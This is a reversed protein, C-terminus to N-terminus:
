GNIDDHKVMWILWWLRCRVYSLVGSMNALCSLHLDRLGGGQLCVSVLLWYGDAGLRRLLRVGEGACTRSSPPKFPNGKGEIRLSRGKCSPIDSDGHSGRSPSFTWRSAWDVDPNLQKILPKLSDPRPAINLPPSCNLFKIRLCSLSNMSKIRLCLLSITSKVSISESSTLSNSSIM